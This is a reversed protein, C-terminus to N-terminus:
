KTSGGPFGLMDIIIHTTNASLNKVTSKYRNAGNTEECLLKLMKLRVVEALSLHSSKLCELARHQRNFPVLVVLSRM